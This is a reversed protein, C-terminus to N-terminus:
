AADNHGQVFSYGRQAKIITKDGMSNRQMSIGRSVTPNCGSLGMRPSFMSFMM